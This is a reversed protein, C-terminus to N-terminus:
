RDKKAVCVVYKEDHVALTIHFDSSFSSTDLSLPPKQIIKAVAEKQTWISLFCKIEELETSSNELLKKREGEFFRSKAILRYSDLKRLHIREIDIGVDLSDSMVAAAMGDSHSLSFSIQPYESFCPKGNAGYHVFPLRRNSKSLHFSLALQSLAEYAAFSEASNKGHKEEIHLLVEEPLRRIATNAPLILIDTVTM